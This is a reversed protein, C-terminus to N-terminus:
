RATLLGTQLIGSSGFSASSCMGKLRRSPAFLTKFFGAGVWNRALITFLTVLGLAGTGSRNVSGDPMPVGIIVAFLIPVWYFALSKPLSTGWFTITRRHTQRFIVLAFLDAIGPGVHRHREEPHPDAALVTLDNPVALHVLKRPTHREVLLFAM